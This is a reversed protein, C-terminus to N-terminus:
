TSLWRTAITICQDHHGLQEFVRARPVEFTGPQLRAVVIQRLLREGDNAIAEHHDFLLEVSGVRREGEVGRALEPELAAAV